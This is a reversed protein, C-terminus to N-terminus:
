PTDTSHFPAHPMLADITNTFLSGDSHRHFHIKAGPAAFQRMWDRCGGCPTFLEVDASIVAETFRACGHKVMSSLAVPEAHLSGTQWRQEVNAGTYISGNEGRLACGVKTGNFYQGDPGRRKTHASLRVNEAALILQTLPNVMEINTAEILENFDNASEIEICVLGPMGRAIRSVREGKMWFGVVPVHHQRAIELEMGVGLSPAGLYAIVLSARRIVGEDIEYVQAPTLDANMIPDSHLHPVYTKVACREVLASSLDEYFPKVWSPAITLAGSIYITQTSM